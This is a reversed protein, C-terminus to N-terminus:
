TFQGAVWDPVDMTGMSVPKQHCDSGGTMLLRHKRAFEIYHAVTKENHSPHWCEVGDIDRLMHKEIIDTQGALDDTVTKLSTGHFDDPHALVLV